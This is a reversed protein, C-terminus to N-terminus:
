LVPVLRCSIPLKLLLGIVKVASRKKVLYIKIYTLIPYSFNYLQTTGGSEALRGSM